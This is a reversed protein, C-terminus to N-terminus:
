KLRLILQMPPGFPNKFYSSDIRKYKWWNGIKLPMPLSDTTPYIPSNSHNENKNCALVIITSCYFLFGIRLLGNGSKIHM